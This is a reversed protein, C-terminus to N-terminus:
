QKDGKVKVKPKVELDLDVVVRHSMNASKPSEKKCHSCCRERGTRCLMGAWFLVAGLILSILMGIGAEYGAM